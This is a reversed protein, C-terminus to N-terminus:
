EFILFLGALDVFLKPPTQDFLVGEQFRSLTSKTLGWVCPMEYVYGVSVFLLRIIRGLWDM